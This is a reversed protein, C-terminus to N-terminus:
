GGSVQVEFAEINPRFVYLTRWHVTYAALRASKTPWGPLYVHSSPVRVQNQPEPEFPSM